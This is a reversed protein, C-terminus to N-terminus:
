NLKREAATLKTVTFTKESVQSEDPVVGARFGVQRMSDDLGNEVQALNGFVQQFAKEQDVGDQLEAFFQSLKGGGEMGPGFTLYHVLAWSEFYFQNVKDIDRYYPSSPTIELLTKLPIPATDRDVQRDTPAGLVIKGDEFRTYGYFEAMGEDLWTPLWRANMHLISHTYEHFVLAYTNLGTSAADLDVMVYQKEWSHKFLGAPKAGKSKSLAPELSKATSEDRAAFILMPAGSDLNADVFRTSFVYRMREFDLAVQRADSASGNTLVTFHPSRVETWRVDGAIAISPVLAILCVAFVVSGIKMAVM